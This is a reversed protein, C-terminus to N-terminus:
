DDSVVDWLFFIDPENWFLTDNYDYVIPRTYRGLIVVRASPPFPWM